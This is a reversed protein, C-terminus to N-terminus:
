LLPLLEPILQECHDIGARTLWYRMGIRYGSTSAGGHQRFAPM